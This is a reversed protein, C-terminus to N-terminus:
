WRRRASAPMPSDGARGRRAHRAARHDRRPDRRDTAGDQIATRISAFQFEAEITLGNDAVRLPIEVLEFHSLYGREGRRAGARRRGGQDAGADRRDVHRTEDLLRIAESRSVSQAAVPQATLLTGAVVVLLAMAGLVLRRMEILGSPRRPIDGSDRVDEGDGGGDCGRGPRCRGRPLQRAGRRQRPLCRLREAQGHGRLNGSDRPREELAAEDASSPDASLKTM